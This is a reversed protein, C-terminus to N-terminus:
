AAESHEALLAGDVEEGVQALINEFLKQIDPSNVNVGDLISRALWRFKGPQDRARHIIGVGEIATDEVHADCGPYDRTMREAPQISGSVALEIEFSYTTTHLAM